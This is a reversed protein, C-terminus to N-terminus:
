ISSKRYDLPTGIGEKKFVQYMYYHSSFGSDYAVEEITMDSNKLLKKAKEIRYNYLYSHFTCNFRKIMIRNIQRPSLFLSKEVDKLLIDNKYNAKIYNLLKTIRLDDAKRKIYGYDYKMNDDQSLHRFILTLIKMIMLQINIYFGPSRTQDEEFIDEFLSVIDADSYTRQYIKSLSEILFKGEKKTYSADDCKEDVTIDCELCYERMPDKVSSRQTHKVYPGTIYFDNSKLYVLVEEIEVTGQGSPIIHFEFDTHSHNSVYWDSDTIVDVLSVIKVKICGLSIEMNLDKLATKIKM